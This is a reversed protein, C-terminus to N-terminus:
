DTEYKPSMAIEAADIPILSYSRIGQGQGEYQVYYYGRVKWFGHEFFATSKLNQRNFYIEIGDCYDIKECDLANKIFLHGQVISNDYPVKEPERYLRKKEPSVNSYSMTDMSVIKGTNQFIFVGLSKGNDEELFADRNYKAIRIRKEATLCTVSVNGKVDQIAPSCPGLTSQNQAHATQWMTLVSIACVLTSKAMPIM